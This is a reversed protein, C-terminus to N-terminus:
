WIPARYRIWHRSTALVAHRQPAKSSQLFGPRFARYRFRSLGIGIPISECKEEAGPFIHRFGAAMTSLLGAELQEGRSLILLLSWQSLSSTVPKPKGPEETTHSVQWLLEHMIVMPPVLFMSLYLCMSLAMLPELFLRQPRLMLPKSHQM